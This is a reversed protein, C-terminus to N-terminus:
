KKGNKISLKRTNEHKKIDEPRPEINGFKQFYEFLINELVDKQTINYNDKKRLHTLDKLKELYENKIIFTQRVYEFEQQITNQFVENEQQTSIPTILNSIGRGQNINSNIGLKFDKKAM